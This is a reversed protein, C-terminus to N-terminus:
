SSITFAKPSIPSSPRALRRYADPLQYSATIRHNGFPSVWCISIYTITLHIFLKIFCSRTFHFMETALPFSFSTIGETAALSLPVPWVPNRDPTTPSRYPLLNSLLIPQSALDCLTFIGYGFDLKYRATGQTPRSVHFGTQIWGSWQTLRFVLWDGIACLVTLSRHFSGLSPLSISGSVM